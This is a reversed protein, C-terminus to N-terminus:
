AVSTRRPRRLRELIGHPAPADTAQLRAARARLLAVLDATPAFPDAAVAGTAVSVVALAHGDVVGLLRPGAPLATSDLAELRAIDRRDHADAPRIAYTALDTTSTTM